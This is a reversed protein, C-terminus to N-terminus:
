LRIKIIFMFNLRKFKVYKHFTHILFHFLFNSLMTSVLIIKLHLFEFVINNCSLLLPFFISFTFFFLHNFYLLTPCFSSVSFTFFYANHYPKNTSLDKNYFRSSELKKVEKKNVPLTTRVSKTKRVNILSKSNKHIHSCFHIYSQTSIFKRKSSDNFNIKRGIEFILFDNSKCFIVYFIFNKLFYFIWSNM